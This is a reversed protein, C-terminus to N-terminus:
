VRELFVQYGDKLSNNEDPILLRRQNSDELLIRLPRNFYLSIEGRAEGKLLPIKIKKPAIMVVYKLIFDAEALIGLVEEANSGFERLLRPHIELFIKLPYGSELINKMGKLILVEGGEVDMRIFDAKKGELLEDLTSTEVEISKESKKDESSLKHLNSYDSVIFQAKGRRNSIALNYFQINTNYSNIEWNNKLIMFNKPEPEVALITGTEGICQAEMLVYYGINAGIDVVTMGPRLERRFLKGCEPERVGYLFLEKNIGKDSLDLIMNSGQINKVIKGGPHIYYNIIPWVREWLPETHLCHVLWALYGTIGREGIVERSRTFIRKLM